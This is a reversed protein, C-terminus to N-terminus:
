MLTANQSLNRTAAQSQRTLHGELLPGLDQAALPEGSGQEVAQRM